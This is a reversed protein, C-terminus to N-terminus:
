SDRIVLFRIHGTDRGATAAVCAAFLLFLYSDIESLNEWTCQKPYVLVNMM